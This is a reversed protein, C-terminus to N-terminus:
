EGGENRKQVTQIFIDHLSIRESNIDRIKAIGSLKGLIESLDDENKITFQIENDPFIEIQNSLNLTDLDKSKLQEGVKLIVKKDIHHQSRIEPLTGHLVQQGHDILLLRDAIREVMQMQHASLLITMGQDRLESILELFFEQNVPDLGSFPEDLVVFDPQHLVSAIFQVKQQNGKSLSDLKENARDLLGMKDLWKNASANADAKKMGHLMGFYSLTYVVKLDPYLGREEPLYGIQHAPLSNSVTGNLNFSITGDDPLIINNITRVTTTKGAGNPGLLAFIEGKNISFSLGDIAKVTNYQKHIHDVTLLTDSL